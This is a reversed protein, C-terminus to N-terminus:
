VYRKAVIRIREKQTKKLAEIRFKGIGRLAVVDGEAIALDPRTEERYNLSVMGQQVATKAKDRSMRGFSAVACDLRCSAIVDSFEEYTRRFSAIAERTAPPANCPTVKVADAGVRELPSPKVLLFAAIPPTVFVVAGFPFLLIDGMASRDIGLAILAGLFSRHTLRVYGSAHVAVPLIFEDWDLYEEEMYDPLLVIVTREAEGYGGYVAFRLSHRSLFAEAQVREEPTLFSTAAPIGRSAIKALDLLRAEQKNEMM